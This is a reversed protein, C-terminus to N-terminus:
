IDLRSQELNGGVVELNNMDEKEATSPEITGIPQDLVDDVEQSLNEDSSENKEVEKNDM